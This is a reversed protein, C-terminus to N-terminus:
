NWDKNIKKFRRIAYELAVNFVLPSSTEGYKVVNQVPFAYSM